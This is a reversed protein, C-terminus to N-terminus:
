RFQQVLCVIELVYELVVLLEDEFELVVLLEHDFLYLSLKM